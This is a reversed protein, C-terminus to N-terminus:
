EYRFRRNTSITIVGGNPIRNKIDGEVWGIPHFKDTEQSTWPHHHSNAPFAVGNCLEAVVRPTLACGTLGLFLATEQKAMKLVNEKRHYCVNCRM